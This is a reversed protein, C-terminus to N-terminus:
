IGMYNGEGDAAMLLMFNQVHSTEKLPLALAFSQDHL